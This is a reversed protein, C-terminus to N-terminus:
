SDKSSFLHRAANDEPAMGCDFAVDFLEAQPLFFSRKQPHIKIAHKICDLVRQRAALVTGQSRLGGGEGLNSRIRGQGENSFFSLLLHERTLRLFDIRSLTLAPLLRM